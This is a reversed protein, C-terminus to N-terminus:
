HSNERLYVIFLKTSPDFLSRGCGGCRREDGHEDLLEAVASRLDEVQDPPSAPPVVESGIACGCRCLALLRVGNVSMM